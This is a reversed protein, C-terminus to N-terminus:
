AQACGGARAEFAGLHDGQLRHIHDPFLHPRLIDVDCGAEDAHLRWVIRDVRNVQKRAALM